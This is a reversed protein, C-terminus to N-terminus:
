GTGEAVGGNAESWAWIRIESQTVKALAIIGLPGCGEPLKKSVQEEGDVKTIDQSDQEAEAPIDITPPALDQKIEQWRVNGDASVAPVRVAGVKAGDSPSKVAAIKPNPWASSVPKPSKAKENAATTAALMDAFSFDARLGGALRLSIVLLPQKLSLQVYTSALRGATFKLM